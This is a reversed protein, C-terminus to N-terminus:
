GRVLADCREQLESIDAHAKKADDVSKRAEYQLVRVQSQSQALSEALHQNERQLSVADHYCAYM